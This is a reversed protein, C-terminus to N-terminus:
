RQTRLGASAQPQWTRLSEYERGRSPLLRADARRLERAHIGIAREPGNGKTSEEIGTLTFVTDAQRESDLGTVASVPTAMASGAFKVAPNASPPEVAICSATGLALAPIAVLLIRLGYM